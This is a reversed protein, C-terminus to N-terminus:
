RAPNRGSEPAYDRVSKGPLGAAMRTKSNDPAHGPETGPIRPKWAILSGM